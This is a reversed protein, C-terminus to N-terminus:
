KPFVNKLTSTPIQSVSNGLRDGIVDYEKPFKIGLEKFSAKAKSWITFGKRVKKEVQSKIKENSKNTRQYIGNVKEAQIGAIGVMKYVEKDLMKLDDILALQIKQSELEVNENEMKENPFKKLVNRLDNQINM